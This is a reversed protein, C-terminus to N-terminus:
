FILAFLLIIPPFILVLIIFLIGVVSLRPRMSQTTTYTEDTTASTTEGTQAGLNTISSGNSFVLALMIVLSVYILKKKM